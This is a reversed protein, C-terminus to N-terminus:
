IVATSTTVTSQYHSTNPLKTVTYEFSDVSLNQISSEGTLITIRVALTHTGHTLQESTDVYTVTDNDTTDDASHNATHVVVDNVLLEYKYTMTGIGSGYKATGLAEMEIQYLGTFPVTIAVNCREITQNNASFSSALNLTTDEIGTISSYNYFDSIDYQYATGIQSQLVVAGTAGAGGDYDYATNTAGGAGITIELYITSGDYASLDLDISIVDGAGGGEGANGASDFTGYWDGGGGGGGAGYHTATADSGATKNSGGAGGAGYTTGTGAEGLFGYTSDRTANNGGTGGTATYTQLLTGTTISDEWVKVITDGGSAGTGTGAGDDERGAGGGGGGGVVSMQLRSTANATGWTIDQTTTVNTTGSVTDTGTYFLPNYLELPNDTKHIVGSIEDDANITVTSFEFGLSSDALRERGVYFGDTSYDSSGTRGGLIGSNDETFQLTENVTVSGLTASIASLTDATINDGTITNAAVKNGTVTGAVLLDGDIFEDQTDWTGSGNQIFAIAEDTCSIIIVDGEVATLTTAALFAADVRTETDTDYYVAANTADEYRWWGAGRTGDAGDVLQANTTASDESSYASTNGTFDVAKVRYYYTTSDALGSDTFIEGSVRGILTTPNSSTGRYVNYQFLDKLASADTNTTPATWVVTASGYGATVTLGTPANPTTGDDGTSIPSVSSTFSSRVGFTNVARVRYDYSAGSVAPALTFETGQLSTSKYTSDTSLKWQFDYYDVLEENSVSWSFNVQTVTTGDENVETNTTAADLSPQPVEFPSQLTTNDREYVEGDSIDDFASEATERLTMHVQLDNGDALGFSWSVVEFEKDAWGFRTNSLLINDGVQVQLGRMGFSAQVTLQQRNRELYVNAIRRAMDVDTTFPLQLDQTIEEENDATVFAANTVPPFDTEQWNSADGKWVGTVTNFNDRRSHRTNVSIGSRLDDENFSVSATTWYAPKMRWKGQAYWLMAGMSSALSQLLNYPDSSVLFSGNASYRTSGTLTPYNYYECVNAATAVLDDDVNTSDEKLGYVTDTWYDRVCLAPNDSWATTGTRPDYVKKGKIVAGIEPIGNPYADQDFSFRIYMYALGRLRHDTTWDTVESVLDTDATQDDAGLHFNIRLKGDYRSSTSGDPDTVSSVNGDGDIDAYAVYSDNIYIKEYSEIEHGAMVVVRHLYKNSTGTTGDFVRGGYVKAEGYVIQYPLTSGTATVKYGQTGSTDPKPSLANIAAGIATTVLFHTMMTATGGALFGGMLAGGTAATTLTSMLGMGASIAM